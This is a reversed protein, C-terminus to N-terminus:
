AEIQNSRKNILPFAYMTLMTNFLENEPFAGEIKTTKNKLYDIFAKKANESYNNRYESTGNMLDFAIYNNEWLRYERYIKKDIIEALGKFWNNTHEEGINRYDEESLPSCFAIEVRGKYGQIGTIMSQFDAQHTKEYPINNALSYIEVAKMLDCPDYEYSLAVPLINYKIFLERTNKEDVMALMKLLSYQTKDNGNKARGERQAIWVSEHLELLAYSIYSSLLQSYKFLERPPIHRKVIFSKNLKVINIIMPSILLNGGIAIQSTNMNNKFLLLNILSSDLVIDRHNSIFLYPKNPDVHEIGRNTLKDISRSIVVDLAKVVFKEQFESICRIDRITDYVESRDMDPFLYRAFLAFEPDGILKQIAANVEDDQYPRLVDFKDPYQTM